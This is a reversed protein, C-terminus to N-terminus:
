KSIQGIEFLCRSVQVRRDLIAILLDKEQGESVDHLRSTHSLRGSIDLEILLIQVMKECPFDAVILGSM